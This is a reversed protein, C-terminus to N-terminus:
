VDTQNLQQPYIGKKREGMSDVVVMLSFCIPWLIKIMTLIMM